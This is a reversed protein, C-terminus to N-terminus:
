NICNVGDATIPDPAIPQEVPPESTTTRSTSRSTSSESTWTTSSESTGSRTTSSRTTTASESSRSSRTSGTTEEASSSSGTSEDDRTSRPSSATGTSEAEGDGTAPDSGTSQGGTEGAQRPVPRGDAAGQVIRSVEAPDVRVAEGDPTDYNADRIPITAFEVDGGAIGQMRQAFTLVDWNRDLVISQRASDVLESLRAPQSLVGGSTATDVLGALFAQQRVMRDLDGRPLGHRQRVFALADAGSIRQHGAAFEAGSYSDHVPRKLCVPVGGVADTLRAFGLLNVEAYHDIQTGTLRQVTETVLSRGADASRREREQADLGDLHAAAAAKGRGYASNIKHQGHGPITTFTDRPISFATARRGNEPVHVLILTDTLSAPNQGAKLKRLVDEPLPRGQADTRSDLGVLLIDTAGDATAGDTAASTSLAWQLDGYNAWGYGAVALVTASLLAVAVKAGTAARSRYPVDPAAFERRERSM